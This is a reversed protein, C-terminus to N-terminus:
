IAIDSANGGDGDAAAPFAAVPVRAVLPVLRNFAQCPGASHAKLPGSASRGRHRSLVPASPGTPRWIYGLRSSFPGWPPEPVM